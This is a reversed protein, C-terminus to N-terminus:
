ASATAKRSMWSDHMPRPNKASSWLQSPYPLAHRLQEPMRSWSQFMRALWVGDVAAPKMWFLQPPLLV